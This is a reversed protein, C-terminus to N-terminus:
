DPVNEYYLYSNELKSKVVSIGCAPCTLQRSTYIFTCNSCRRVQVKNLNRRYLKAAFRNFATLSLSTKCRSCKRALPSVKELCQFCRLMEGTEPSLITVHNTKDPFRSQCHPCKKSGLPAEYQCKLCKKVKTQSLNFEEGGRHFKYGCKICAAQLPVSEECRGCKITVWSRFKM